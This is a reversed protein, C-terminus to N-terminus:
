VNRNDKIHQVLTKIFIYGLVAVGYVATVIIFEGLTITDNM